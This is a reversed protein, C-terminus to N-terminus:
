EIEFWQQLGTFYLGTRILSEDINEARALMARYANLQPTYYVAQESVFAEAPQGQEPRSTKFDVIWWADGDRRVFDLVGAQIIGPTKVAELPCESAGEPRSSDLLWRFFAEERCAAMEEAIERAVVVAKQPNIGESALALVIRETEPIEGGHWLTEILRHTVTGRIAAHQRLEGERRMAEQPYSSLDALESPTEIVYPVPQAHFPMPKPLDEIPRDPESKVDRGIPNVSTSILADGHRAVHKVIWNLPTNTPSTFGQETNKALGSLFLSERARTMGVYLLRKAEGM